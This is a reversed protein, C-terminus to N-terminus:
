ISFVSLSDHFKWFFADFNRLIHFAQSLKRGNTEKGKPMVVLVVM